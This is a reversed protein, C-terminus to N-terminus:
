IEKEKKAIDVVACVLKAMTHWRGRELEEELLEEKTEYNKESMRYEGMILYYGSEEKVVTFPTNEVTEFERLQSNNPNEDGKREISLVEATEM